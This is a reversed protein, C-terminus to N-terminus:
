GLFLDDDREQFLLIYSFLVFGYFQTFFLIVAIVFLPLCILIAALSLLLLLVSGGLCLIIIALPIAIIIGILTISM